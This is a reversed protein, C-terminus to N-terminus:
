LQGVALSKSETATSVQNHVALLMRVPILKPVLAQSQTPGIEPKVVEERHSKPM